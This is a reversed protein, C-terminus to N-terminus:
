DAEDRPRVTYIMEIDIRHLVVDGNRVEYRSGPKGFQQAQAIILNLLQEEDDSETFKLMKGDFHMWISFRRM